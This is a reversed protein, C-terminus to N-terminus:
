PVYQVSVKDPTVNMTGIVKDVIAVVQAAELSGSQVVVKYSDEEEAVAVNEYKEQLEDELSAILTQKTELENLEETAAVAAEKDQGEADSLVGYIEDLEKAFKDTRDFKLRSIMDGAASSEAGGMSDLVARDAESMGDADAEATEEGDAGSGVETVSAGGAAEQAGSVASDTTLKSTGTDETFLYYASLIVMLSLMSVLWVTQRKSNM